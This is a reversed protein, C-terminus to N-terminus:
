LVHTSYDGTCPHGSSVHVTRSMPLFIVTAQTSFPSGHRCVGDQDNANQDNHDALLAKVNDVDFLLKSQEILSSLHERRKRSSEYLPTGAFGSMAKSSWVSDAAFQLEQMDSSTYQNGLVTVPQNVPAISHKTRSVELVKSNQQADTILLSGGIDRHHNATIATIAEDTTRCTQLAEQILIALPVTKLSLMDTCYCPNQVITLGHQNMGSYTGAMFSHTLEISFYGDRPKSKRILLHENLDISMDLNKAIIPEETTSKESFIGVVTGSNLAFSDLKAQLEMEYAQLFFLTEQTLNAGATLGLVRETQHNIFKAMYNKLFTVAKKQCHILHLAKPALKPRVHELEPSDQMIEWAKTISDKLLRGQLVGMPYESGNCEIFRVAM